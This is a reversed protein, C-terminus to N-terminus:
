VFLGNCERNRKQEAEAERTDNRYLFSNFNELQHSMITKVFKVLGGNICM